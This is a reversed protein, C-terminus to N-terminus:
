EDWIDDYNKTKATEEKLTTEGKLAKIFKKKENLVEEKM